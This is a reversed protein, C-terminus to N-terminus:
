APEVVERVEASEREDRRRLDCVSAGIAHFRQVDDGADYIRQTPPASLSERPTRDAIPKLRRLDRDCQNFGGITRATECEGINGALANMVDANACRRESPRLFTQEIDADGSNGAQASFIAVISASM